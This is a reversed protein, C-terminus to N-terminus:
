TDNVLNGKKYPIKKVLIKYWDQNFKRVKSDINDYEQHHAYQHRSEVTIGFENVKLEFGTM